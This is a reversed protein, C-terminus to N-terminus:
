ALGGRRQGIFSPDVDAPMVSPGRAAAREGPADHSEALHGFAVDMQGFPSM